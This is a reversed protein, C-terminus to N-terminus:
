MVQYGDTGDSMKDNSDSTFAYLAKVADTAADYDATGSASILGYRQGTYRTDVLDFQVAGTDWAPRKGVVLMTKDWGVAASRQDPLKAIEVNVEDGPNIDGHKMLVQVSITPNPQKFHRMKKRCIRPALNAGNHESVLPKCELSVVGAIDYDSQSTADTVQVTDADFDGGVPEWDYDLTVENIIESNDYEVAPIGVIDNSDLTVPAASVLPRAIMLGLKGANTMMFCLGLPMLIQKEIFTKMNTASNFVIRFRYDQYWDRVAEFSDFDIESPPIRLGAAGAGTDATHNWAYWYGDQDLDGPTPLSTNYSILLGLILDVPNDEAAWYLAVPDGNNHTRDTTGFQGRVVTISAGSNDVRLWEEDATGENVVLYAAAYYGAALEIQASYPMTDGEDPTIAVTTAGASLGGSLVAGWDEMWGFLKKNLRKTADDITLDYVAGDRVRVSAIRGVHQFSYDAFAMGEFGGLLVAQKGILNIGDFRGTTDGDNDLISVSLADTTLRGNRLDCRQGGGTPMLMTGQSIDLGNGDITATSFIAQPSMITRGKLFDRTTTGYEGRTVYAGDVGGTTYKYCRSLEWGDDDWVMIPSPIRPNFDEDSDIAFVGAGASSNSHLVASDYAVVLVYVPRQTPM